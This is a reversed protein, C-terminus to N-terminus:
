GSMLWNLQGKLKQQLMLMLAENNKHQKQAVLNFAERRAATLVKFHKTLQALKLDPLGTQREGFLQGEGRLQLDAEALSFGDTSKVFAQLRGKAASSQNDGFLLCWSRKGGRGVRGRLQHLQALGFRDAHEILMVTANPVDVGVEIVTTAILIDLKGQRFATMIEEKEQARLKGHLFGVKFGAFVEKTLFAAEQTVSKLALKDSEDVLPCIIYVQSGAKIEKKILEYAKDRQAEPIVRTTVMEKLDRGGPRERLESVDLDGYLTLSLSRPIPTATMVLVDPEQGKFRLALRQQVGFRHQEDIIVLGLKKFNVKEQILAHTGVVIDVKGAKIQEYLEEKQKDTLSSTLLAFRAAMLSKPMLKKLNLFHQEALIETPAMLAAQYGGSIVMAMAILAVVTKGSGVEGLLLRHMPQKQQLDTKIDAVAQQQDKTLSFPLSNIFAQIKAENIQHAIGQKKLQYYRKKMALGLELLFFEEFILRLRAAKWQEKSAPFHIQQLAENIALLKYKTRIPEPLTEPLPLFQKLATNILKRLRVTSLKTTAKYVPVLRGTNVAESSEKDLIDYAPSTIQWCGFRWKPKGSFAVKLGTKFTKVLYDQNFWVGQLYSSGDFIVVTVITLGQRSKRKEVEKVEGIFTAEQGERAQSILSVTSLDLYRYPYHTLLDWATNIGLKQLEKLSSLGVGKLATLSATDLITKLKEM